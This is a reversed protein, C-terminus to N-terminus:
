AHAQCLTKPRLGLGRQPRIHHSWLHRRLELFGEWHMGSFLFHSSCSPSQSKPVAVRYDAHQVCPLPSLVTSLPFIRREEPKRSKQSLQRTHLPKATTQCSCVLFSPPPEHFSVVECLAWRPRLAPVYDPPLRHPLHYAASSVAWIGCGLRCCMPTIIPYPLSTM